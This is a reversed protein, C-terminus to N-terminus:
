SDGEQVRRELETWPEGPATALIEDWIGPTTLLQVRIMHARAEVRIAEWAADSLAVRQLTLWTPRADNQGDNMALLSPWHFNSQPTESM